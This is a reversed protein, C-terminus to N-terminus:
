INTDYGVKLNNVRSYCFDRYAKKKPLIRRACTLSGMDVQMKGPSLSRQM